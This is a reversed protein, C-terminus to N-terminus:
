SPTQSDSTPMIRPSGFSLEEDPEQMSWDVLRGRAEALLASLRWANSNLKALGMRSNEAVRVVVADQFGTTGDGEAGAIGFGDLRRYGEGTARSLFARAEEEGDFELFYEIRMERDFDFGNRMLDFVFRRNRAAMKQYADPQLDVRYFSWDPDEETAIDLRDVPWQGFYSELRRGDQASRGFRGIRSSYLHFTVDQGNVLRFGVDIYRHFAAWQLYEPFRRQLEHVRRQPDEGRLRFSVAHHLPFGELPAKSLLGRDLGITAEDKEYLSYPFHDRRALLRLALFLGYAALLVTAALALVFLPASRERTAELEAAFFFGTPVLAALIGVLAIGRRFGALGIGLGLLVSLFGIGIIWLASTALFGTENETASALIVALTGAATLPIAASARIRQGTETQNPYAYSQERYSWSGRHAMMKRYAIRIRRNPSIRPTGPQGRRRPVSGARGAEVEIPRAAGDIRLGAHLLEEVRNRTGRTLPNFLAIFIGMLYAPSELLGEGSTGLLTRVIMAGLAILGLLISSFFVGVLGMAVPAPGRAGLWVALVVAAGLALDLLVIATPDTAVLRFPLVFATALLAFVVACLWRRRDTFRLFHVLLRKMDDGM